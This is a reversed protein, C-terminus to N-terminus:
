VGYTARTAHYNQLVEYADLARGYCHVEGIRGNLFNGAGFRGLNTTGNGNHATTFAADSNDLSGNIYLKIGSTTSFTVVAYYWTNLSISSMSGFSGVGSYPPVNAHGAYLTSTGALYLYHGGAESSVLNNDAYSNLYFWVGKTYQFSPVVNETTGTASQSSASAFTFYAPSGTTYTPANVLTVDSAGTQDNWTTGSGSYTSATLLMTLGSPVITYRNEYLSFQEQVQALTLVGNYIKFVGVKGDMKVPGTQPRPNVEFLDLAAATNVNSGNGTYVSSAVEADNIYMKSGAAGITVVVQQWVNTAPPTSYTLGTGTGTGFRFTWGTTSFFGVYGNSTTGRKSFLMNPGAANITDVQIWMLISIETMSDLAAQDAITFYDGQAPVLDFYDSSGVADVHAPTGQLTADNNDVAQDQWDGAGSYGNADLYLIETAVFRAANENYVELVQAATLAKNWVRFFGVGAALASGDGMATIDAACLVFKRDSGPGYAQVGTFSSATTANIYGTLTNTADNYTLVYHQWVNRTVAGVTAASIGAGSWIGVRLDGSVIEMEALHYGGGDGQKSVLVGNDSNTKAWIEITQSETPFLATLDPTTATENVGDFTFFVPYGSSFFPTNELTGNSGVEAPWTTGSGTYDIADLVLIPIPLIDVAKRRGFKSVGTFSSFM